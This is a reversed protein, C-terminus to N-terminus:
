VAGTFTSAQLLLSPFYVVHGWEYAVKAGAASSAANLRVLTAAEGSVAHAVAQAATALYRRFPGYCARSNPSCDAFHRGLPSM